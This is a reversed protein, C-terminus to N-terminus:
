VTFEEGGYRVALDAPRKLTLAIAMAVKRLCDDGAAHGYKDNYQKFQDVDIM